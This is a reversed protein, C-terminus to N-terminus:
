AAVELLEPHKMILKFWHTYADPNKLIDNQLSKLDVFKWDEVEEKNIFPADNYTGVFVYDCEHEILGKELDTKYIFKYSFAMPAEIGMEQKLKRATASEM